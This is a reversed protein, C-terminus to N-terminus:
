FPHPHERRDLYIRSGRVSSVYFRLARPLYHFDTSRCRGSKIFSSQSIALCYVCTNLKSCDCTEHTENAREPQNEVSRASKLLVDERVSLVRACGCYDATDHPTFVAIAFFSHLCGGLKDSFSFVFIKKM